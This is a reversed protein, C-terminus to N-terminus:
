RRRRLILNAAVVLVLLGLVPVVAFIVPFQTNADDAAANAAANAPLPTSTPRRTPSGTPVLTPTRTSTPTLTPLPIRTAQPADLVLSTYWVQYSSDPPGAIRYRDRTSFVLHLYNGNSIALSPLEIFQDGAYVTAPASWSVGDWKLHYVASLDQNKASRGIAIIHTVNASDHVSAFYDNGTATKAAFLGPVPTRDSWTTGQDSSTQYFTEDKVGFNQLLLLNGKADLDLLPQRIAEKDDQILIPQDLWSEGNNTSISLGAGAPKDGGPTYSWLAYLTGSPARVLQIGLPLVQSDYIVRNLSWTHGSDTSQGYMAQYCSDCNDKSEIWVAHLVGQDDTQIDGMVANKGHNLPLASNWGLSTGAQAQNADAVVVNSGDPYMVHMLQRGDLVLSSKPGGILIDVPRSWALGDYKSYYLTNDTQTVGWIAHVTGNDEAVISPYWSGSLASSIPIARTWQEATQAHSVTFWLGSAVLLVSALIFVSPFRRFM